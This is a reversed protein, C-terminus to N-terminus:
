VNGHYIWYSKFAKLYAVLLVFTTLPKVAQFHHTKDLFPFDFAGVGNINDIPYNGDKTYGILNSWQNNLYGLAKGMLGSSTTSHLTEDLLQRIKKLIPVSQKSRNKKIKYPKYDKEKSQKEVFYLQGILNIM